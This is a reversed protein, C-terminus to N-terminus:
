LSFLFPGPVDEHSQWCASWLCVSCDSSLNLLYPPPSLDVLFFSNSSTRERLFSSMLLYFLLYETRVVNPGQLLGGPKRSRVDCPRAEACALVDKM